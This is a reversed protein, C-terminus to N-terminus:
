YPEPEDSNSLHDAGCLGKILSNINKKYICKIHVLVYMYIYVCLEPVNILAM